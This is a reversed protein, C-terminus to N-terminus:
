RKMGQILGTVIVRLQPVGKIFTLLRILRLTRLAGVAASSQGISMFVYGIAVIGFDFCNFYGDEEDAFYQWPEYAEAVIKLTCELTFVIQTGLSVAEVFHSVEPSRGDFELDIGSAAGTLLINAMIFAEFWAQSTVHEYSLWALRKYPDDSTALTREKRKHRGEKVAVTQQLKDVEPLLEAFQSV